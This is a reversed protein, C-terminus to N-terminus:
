APKNLIGSLEKKTMPVPKNSMDVKIIREMFETGDLGKKAQVAEEPDYMEVYGFGSGEILDVRKVKGFRSFLDELGDRTVRVYLNGVYLKNGFM